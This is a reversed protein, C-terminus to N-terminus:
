DNQLITLHSFMNCTVGHQECIVTIICFSPSAQFFVVRHLVSNGLPLYAKQGKNHRYSNSLHQRVMNLENQEMKGTVIQMTSETRECKNWFYQISTYFCLHEWGSKCALCSLISFLFSRKVAAIKHTNHLMNQAKIYCSRFFTYQLMFKYCFKIRKTQYSM